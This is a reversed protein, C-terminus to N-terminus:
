GTTLENWDFAMTHTPRNLTVCGFLAEPMEEETRSEICFGISFIMKDFRNFLVELAKKPVSSFKHVNIDMEIYRNDVDRIITYILIISYQLQFLLIFIHFKFQACIFLKRM